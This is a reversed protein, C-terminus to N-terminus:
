YMYRFICSEIKNVTQEHAANTLGVSNVTRASGEVSNCIQLMVGNIWPM